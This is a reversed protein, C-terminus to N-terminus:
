LTEVKFKAVLKDYTAKTIYVERTSDLMIRFTSEVEKTEVLDGNDDYLNQPEHKIESLGIIKTEDIISERENGKCNLTQLKLM